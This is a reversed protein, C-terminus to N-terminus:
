WNAGDTVAVSPSSLLVPPLAAPPAPAGSAAQQQVRRYRHRYQRGGRQPGPGPGPAGAGPPLVEVGGLAYSAVGSNSWTFTVTGGTGAATSGNLSGCSGASGNNDNFRSTGGSALSVVSDGSAMCAALQSSASTATFGKSPSALSGQSAQFTGFAAAFTAAAGTFSVSGATVVDTTGSFTFSMATSGGAANALGFLYLFGSNGGAGAAEKGILTMSVGGATCAATTAATAQDLCVAAVLAAGAAAVHTWAYPSASTGTPSGGAPGVADFAVAM